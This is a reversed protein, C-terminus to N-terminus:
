PRASKKKDKDFYWDTFGYPDDIKTDSNMKSAAGCMADYVSEGVSDPVVERAEEPNTRIGLVLGDMMYQTWTLM